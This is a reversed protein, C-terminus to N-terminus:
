DPVAASTGAAWLDSSPKFHARGDGVERQRSCRRGGALKERGAEDTERESGYADSDGAGLLDGVGVQDAEAEPSGDGDAHHHQNQDVVNEVSRPRNEDAALEFM